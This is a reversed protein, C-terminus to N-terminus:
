PLRILSTSYSVFGNLKYILGIVVILIVITPIIPPSLMCFNFLLTSFSYLSRIEQENGLVIYFDRGGSRSKLHVFTPLQDVSYERNFKYLMIRRLRLYKSTATGKRVMEELEECITVGTNDSTYLCVYTFDKSISQLNQLRFRYGDIEDEDARRIYHQTIRNNYERMDVRGFCIRLSPEEM